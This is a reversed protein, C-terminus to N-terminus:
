YHHLYNLLRLHSLLLRTFFMQSSSFHYLLCQLSPVSACRCPLYLFTMYQCSFWQNDFQEYIFDAPCFVVPHLCPRVRQGRVGPRLKSTHQATHPPAQNTAKVIKSHIVSDATPPGTSWDFSSQISADKEQPGKETWVNGDVHEEELNLDDTHTGARNDQEGEPLPHPSSAETELTAPDVAIDNKEKDKIRRVSVHGFDKEVKNIVQNLHKQPVELAKISAKSPSLSEQTEGSFTTHTELEPTATVPSVEVEENKIGEEPSADTSSTPFGSETIPTTVPRTRHSFGSNQHGDLLSGDTNAAAAEGSTVSQATTAEAPFDLSEDSELVSADSKTAQFSITSSWPQVGSSHGTLKKPGEKQNRDTPQTDKGTQIPTLDSLGTEPRTINETAGAVQM